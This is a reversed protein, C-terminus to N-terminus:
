KVLEYEKLCEMLIKKNEDGIPALPLRVDASSIIGMEAAAVKVPVPNTDIFM